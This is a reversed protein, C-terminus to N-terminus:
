AVDPQYVVLLIDAAAETMAYGRRGCQGEVARM